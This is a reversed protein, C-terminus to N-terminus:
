TETNVGYRIEYIIGKVKDHESYPSSNSLYNYIKMTACLRNSKDIYLAVLYKNGINIKGKQEKFPLFLDKELGWDLFAGIKTIEKVKLLAIEGITILPRNITAILRDESDRYVFVEIADGININELVQKKPLLISEVNKDGKAKLYVGRETMRVVELEQVKGLEIM